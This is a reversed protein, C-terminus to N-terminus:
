VKQAEQEQQEVLSERLAELDSCARDRELTLQHVNRNLRSTAGELEKLRATLSPDPQPPTAQTVSGGSLQLTFVYLGM